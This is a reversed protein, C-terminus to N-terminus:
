WPVSVPNAGIPFVPPLDYAGGVADDVRILFDGLDAKGGGLQCCTASSARREM